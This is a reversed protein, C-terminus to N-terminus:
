LGLLREGGAARFAALAHERGAEAESLLSVFVPHSRLRDFQPRASLTAVAFYRKAIARQLFTLGTEDDEVDCLLWGEQFIAEPDDQIRLTAFQSQRTNMGERRRDLWATLYEIWSEFAPIRSQRRMGELKARAEDRRGALGLAIVRIGDDAGAIVRPPEIALLRDLDGTM